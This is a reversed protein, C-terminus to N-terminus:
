RAPGRPACAGSTSRRDPGRRGRRPYRSEAFTRSKGRSRRACRRSSGGAEGRRVRACSPPEGADGAPARPRSRRLRQSACWRCTSPPDSRPRWRSRLRPPVEPRTRSSPGSGDASRRYAPRSTLRIVGDSAGHRSPPQDDSEDAQKSDRGADAREGEDVGLAERIERGVWARAHVAVDHVLLVVPPELAAMAVRRGADLAVQRMRADHLPDRLGLVAETVRSGERQLVELLRDLDRRFVTVQDAHIAHPAVFGQDVRDDLGTPVSSSGQIAQVAVGAGPVAGPASPSRMLRPQSRPKSPSSPIAPRVTSRSASRVLMKSRLCSARCGKTRITSTVSSVVSGFTQAWFQGKWYSEYRFVDRGVVVFYPPRPTPALSVPGASCFSSRSGQSLRM